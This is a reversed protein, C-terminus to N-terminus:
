RSMDVGVSSCRVHSARLSSVGLTALGSILWLRLAFVLSCFEGRSSTLDNTTALRWTADNEGLGTTPEETLAVGEYLAVGEESVVGM